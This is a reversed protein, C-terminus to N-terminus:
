GRGTSFPVRQLTTPNSETLRFRLNPCPFVGCLFLPRRSPHASKLNDQEESSSIRNLSEIILEANEDIPKGNNGRYGEMDLACKQFKDTAGMISYSMVYGNQLV